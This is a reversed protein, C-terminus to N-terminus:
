GYISCHVIQDMWTEHCLEVLPWCQTNGKLQINFKWLFKFLCSTSSCWLFISGLYLNRIESVITKYILIKKQRLMGAFSLQDFASLCTMTLSNFSLHKTQIKISKYNTVSQATHKLIRFLIANCFSQFYKMVFLPKQVWFISYFHLLFGVYCLIYFNKDCYVYFKKDGNPISGPVEPMATLQMVELDGYWSFTNLTTLSTLM